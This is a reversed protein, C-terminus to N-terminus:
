PQPAQEHVSVPSGRRDTTQVDTNRVREESRHYTANQDSKAHVQGSAASVAILIISLALMKM